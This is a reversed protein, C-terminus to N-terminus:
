FAEVEMEEKAASLFQGFLAVFQEAQTEGMRALANGVRHILYREKIATHRKGHETLHVLVRRRDHVDAERTIYGRNELDSLLSSMRPGSNQLASSLDGPLARNGHHRLKEMAIHDAKLMKGFNELVSRRNERLLTLFTEALETSEM